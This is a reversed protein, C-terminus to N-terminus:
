GYVLRRWGRRDFPKWAGRPQALRDAIAYLVVPNFGLGCHSGVVEINDTTASPREICTQWAAVGDTKSYIATSPVPPPESIRRMFHDERVRVRDNTVRDYLWVAHTGRGRSAFPSGLTIVQRVVEPMERALERAYIGGLSWGVISIPQEYRKALEELRAYLRRQLNDVPGLNRGLKWPHARYQREKLFGRLPRTSVDSATFGPLVLVPHGDGKPCYELLRRTWLLSSAELSARPLESLALLPHPPKISEAGREVVAM